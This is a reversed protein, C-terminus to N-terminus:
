DNPEYFSRQISRRDKTEVKPVERAQRNASVAWYPIEKEECEKFEDQASNVKGIHYKEEYGNRKVDYACVATYRARSSDYRNKVASIYTPYKYLDGTEGDSPALLVVKTAIKTIDSSGHFDEINPVISQFRRDSKRLHALMLIPKSCDQSLTKLNKVLTKMALNENENEFDFYHLHDIIILDTQDQISLIVQSINNENLNSKGQYYTNLGPYKESLLADFEPNLPDLIENFKGNMWDMYNFHKDKFKSKMSGYVHHAVMAYKIRREIEDKEAELAFFHIRKHDANALACITAAQTKGVGTKSGLVIFDSTRIGGLCDDLYKIGFSLPKQPQRGAAETKLRESLKKIEDLVNTSFKKQDTM